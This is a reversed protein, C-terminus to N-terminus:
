LKEYLQDYRRIMADLSFNEQACSKCKAGIQQLSEKDMDLYSNLVEAWENEHLELAAIGSCHRSIEMHSPINSVVAPLGAYMAELVSVPLGEVSSPSVYIHAQKLRRYVEERPILGLIEVRDGLHRAAIMKRIDGKEDETGILVLRCLKLRAFVKLLFEHNKTPIMRAVYILRKLDDKQDGAPAVVSDIRKLDVGNLLVLANDKKIKRILEPYREFSSQSVFTVKSALLSSFASLLKNGTNYAGFLSHVTFITKPRYNLFLTSLNFLAASRPQHLHIILKAGETNCEKEVRRMIARIKKGSNAVCYLRLGDPIEINDPISPSCVIVTQKDHAGIGYRYLIFENYPMSTDSVSNIVTVIHKNTIM